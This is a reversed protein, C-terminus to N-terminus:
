KLDTKKIGLDKLLTKESVIRRKKIDELGERIDKILGKNALIDMTEEWSFVEEPNIVVAKEEGKLTVTFRRLKNSVESIITYFNRRAKSASIVSALPSM